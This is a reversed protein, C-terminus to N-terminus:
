QRPWGDPSEVGAAHGSSPLSTPWRACFRRRTPPTGGRWASHAATGTARGSTATATVTPLAAAELGASTCALVGDCASPHRGSDGGGGTGRCRISQSGPRVNSPTRRVLFAFSRCLANACCVPDVPEGGNGIWVHSVVGASTWSSSALTDHPVQRRGLLRAMMAFLLWGPLPDDGVTTTLHQHQMVVNSHRVPARGGPGLGTALGVVTPAAVRCHM